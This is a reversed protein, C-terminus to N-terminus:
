SLIPFHHLWPGPHLVINRLFPFTTLLHSVLLIPFYEYYSPRRGSLWARIAYVNRTHLICLLRASEM